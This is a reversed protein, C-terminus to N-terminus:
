LIEPSYNPCKVFVLVSLNLLYFHPLRYMKVITLGNFVQHIFLVIIVKQKIVTQVTRLSYSLQRYITLLDRDQFYFIILSIFIYVATLKQLGLSLLCPQTWKPSKSVDNLSVVLALHDFCAKRYVKHMFM